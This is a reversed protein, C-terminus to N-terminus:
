LRYNVALALSREPGMNRELDVYYYQMLNEIRLNFNLSNITYEFGVSWIHIPVRRDAGTLSNEQFLEVREMRSNYRYDVAATWQRWNIAVRGNFSHRFRYSLTDVVRGSNNMEVPDIWAYALEAVLLDKFFGAQLGIELGTIAASTINTFRVTDTNYIVPEIMDQYDTKFLALDFKAATVAGRQPILVTAGFEQSWSTEAGLHPNPVVKFVSLQSNSYLEAVTPVRFGHGMSARLSLNDLPRYNVAILPSLTQDLLHNDVRYSEFRGGFSLTAKWPLKLQGNFYGAGSLSSHGGFIQADITARQAAIGATSSFNDHWDTAIQYELFYKREHSFDNNTLADTEWDVLYVAAKLKMVTATTSIYNAFGSFNFKTGSTRDNEYGVPAEFPHAADRWLSSTGKEDALLNAFLSANYRDGFNLKLKSTLNLAKEWGLRYYGDDNRGQLRLWFGHQGLPRAHTIEGVQFFGPRDRWRWQRYKPQSYFGSKIRFRSEPKAPTNRTIINIVGGMASSGYLASGSSKVVEIRAIESAPIIGWTINGAASGLLPIGDLLLLSRNGAGLSYSNAGRINIQDKVIAIGAQQPLVQEISTAARDAIQRPGIVAVAMPADMIDQMKRTATVVVQPSSLVAPNLKIELLEDDNVPVTQRQYGIMTVVLVTSNDAIGYITFYGKEDSAAGNFSHRVMVNAGPLPQGNEGDIVRGRITAGIAVGFSLSSWM